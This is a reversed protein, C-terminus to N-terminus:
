WTEPHRLDNGYYPFWVSEVKHNGDPTGPPNSCAALWHRLEHQFVLERHWTAWESDLIVITNGILCGLAQNGESVSCLQNVAEGNGTVLALEGVSCKLTFGHVRWQFLALNLSATPIDRYQISDSAPCGLLVLLALLLLTRTKM